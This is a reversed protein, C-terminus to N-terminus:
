DSADTGGQPTKQIWDKGGLVTGEEERDRNLTDTIPPSASAPPETDQYAAHAM